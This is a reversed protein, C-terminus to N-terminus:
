QGYIEKQAAKLKDEFRLDFVDETTLEKDIAGLENAKKALEMTVSPDQWIMNIVEKSEWQRAIEESSRIVAGASGDKIHKSLINAAEIPKSNILRHADAIANLFHEVVLEQQNLFETNIVLSNRPLFQETYGKAEWEPLIVAGAKILAEADQESVVVADVAKKNMLAITQYAREIDVLQMKNLDINEKGMVTQFFLDNIGSPSVIINKGYLDTFKNLNENPRVFIFSPSSASAAIIRMPADKVMAQMFNTFSGLGIDVQSAAMAQMVERGSKLPIMEPFIGYKQFYGNEYAIIISANTVSETNYGIRVPALDSNGNNPKQAFILYSGIFLIILGCILYIKKM